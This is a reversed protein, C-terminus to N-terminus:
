LSFGESTEENKEENKKGRGIITKRDSRIDYDM